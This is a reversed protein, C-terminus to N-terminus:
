TENGERTEEAREEQNDGYTTVITEMLDSFNLKVEAIDIAAIEEAIPM